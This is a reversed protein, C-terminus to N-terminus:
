NRKEFFVLPGENRELAFRIEESIHLLQGSNRLSAIEHEPTTDLHSMVLVIVSDKWLIALRRRKNNETFWLWKGQSLASSLLALPAACTATTLVAVLSNLTLAGFPWATASVGDYHHLIVISISFSSLSVFAALVEPSRTIGDYERPSKLIQSAGPGTRRQQHEDSDKASPISQAPDSQSSETM